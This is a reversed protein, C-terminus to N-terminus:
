KTIIRRWLNLIRKSIVNSIIGSYYFKSTTSMTTAASQYEKDAIQKARCLAEVLRRLEKTTM